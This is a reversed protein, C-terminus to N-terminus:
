SVIEYPFNILPVTTDRFPLAIEKYRTLQHAIADVILTRQKQVTSQVCSSRPGSTVVQLNLRPWRASKRIMREILGVLECSM